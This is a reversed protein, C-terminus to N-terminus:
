QQLRKTCEFIILDSSILLLKQLLTLQALMGNELYFLIHSDLGVM